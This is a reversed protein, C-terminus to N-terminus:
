YGYAYYGHRARWQARRWERERWHARRWERERWHRERWYPDRAYYYPAPYAAPYATPYVVPAPAVYVPAAQIVVAPGRAHAPLATFALASTALVASAFLARPTKM